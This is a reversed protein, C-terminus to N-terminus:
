RARKAHSEIGAEFEAIAREQDALLRPAPESGLQRGSELLDKLAHLGARVCARHDAVRRRWGRGATDAGLLYNVRVGSGEDLYYWEGEGDLLGTVRFAVGLGPRDETIALRLRQPRALRRPPDLIVVGGAPAPRSRAGPWWAGYGGIDVLYPHVDRRRARIFGEDSVQIRM